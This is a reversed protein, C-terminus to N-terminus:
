FIAAGGGGTANSFWVPPRDWLGRKPAGGVSPMRTAGPRRSAPGCGAVADCVQLAATVRQCAKLFKLFEAPSAKLHHCKTLVRELDPLGELAAKRLAALAEAGPGHAM